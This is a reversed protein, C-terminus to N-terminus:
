EQFPNRRAADFLAHVSVSNDRLDELQKVAGDDVHPGVATQVQSQVADDSPQVNSLSSIRWLVFGYAGALLLAFLAVRYARLGRVARRGATRLSAVNISLSQKM